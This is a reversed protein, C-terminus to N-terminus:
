RSGVYSARARFSTRNAYEEMAHAVWGAVRGLVFIAESAGPIMLNAEALAALALDCNPPPMGRSAALAVVGDIADLSAPLERLRRMVEAARPDGDPYLPHGFGHISAGRSLVEGLAGAPGHLKARALIPRVELSSAAHYPGSASALGTLVVAYPDAGFAAATRAALTSAALEHDAMLMLAADLLGVRAATPPLPSLRPWLREALSAATATPRRVARGVVPLSDVLTALLGGAAATVAAPSHDHRLPDTTAAVAVAVRWRDAPPCHTDLAAAAATVIRSAHPPASWRPATLPWEGRWLWTAAEEFSRSRSIALADLGRYRLAGNEILTLGTVFAVPSGPRERARRSRAALREIDGADFTSGAGTRSRAVLGRSVYAYLTSPKVGLHAAAEATTL